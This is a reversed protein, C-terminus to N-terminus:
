WLGPDPLPSLISDDELSSGSFIESIHDQCRASLTQQTNDLSLKVFGTNNPFM